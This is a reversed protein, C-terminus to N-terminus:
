EPTVLRAYRFIRMPSDLYKCTYLILDADYDSIQQDEEGAYIEYIWKRQNYIIEVTDGEELEPLLYFSHYRWYDDEWWWKWGFRHAAVIMPLSQDEPTGFDPVQWVGTLLAEEYSENDQLESRVGIRPIVLWKGEPLNENFEPQNKMASDNEDTERKVESADAELDYNSILDSGDEQAEVPTKQQDFALYYAKPGIWVFSTIVSIIILLSLVNQTVPHPLIYKDFYNHIRTLLGLSVTEKPEKSIEIAAIKEELDKPNKIRLQEYVYNNAFISEQITKSIKPHVLVGVFMLRIAKFLRASAGFNNIM